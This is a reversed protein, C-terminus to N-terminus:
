PQPLRITYAFAPPSEEAEGTSLIVEIQNQDLWRAGFGYPCNLLENTVPIYREIVQDVVVVSCVVQYPGEDSVPHASLLLVKQGDASTYRANIGEVTVTQHDDLWVWSAYENGYGPHVQSFIFADEQFWVAVPVEFSDYFNVADPIRYIIQQRLTDFVAWYPNGWRSWSMWNVDPIADIRGNDDMLLVVYRGDPSVNTVAEIEGAFLDTRERTRLDYSALVAPQELDLGVYRFLRVQYEEPVVLNPTCLEGLPYSEKHRDELYYTELRCVPGHGDSGRWGIGEM